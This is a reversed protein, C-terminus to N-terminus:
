FVDAPSSRIIELLGSTVRGTDKELLYGVIRALKNFYVAQKELLEQQKMATDDLFKLHEQIDSISSGHGRSVERMKRTDSLLDQIHSTNIQVFQRFEDIGSDPM